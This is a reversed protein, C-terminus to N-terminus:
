SSKERVRGSGIRGEAIATLARTGIWRNGGEGRKATQDTSQEMIHVGIIHRDTESTGHM